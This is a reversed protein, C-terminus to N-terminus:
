QSTCDDDVIWREIRDIEIPCATPGRLSSSKASWDSYNDGSVCICQSCLRLPYLGIFILLYVSTSSVLHGWHRRLSEIQDFSIQCWSNLIELRLSGWDARRTRVTFSSPALRHLKDKHLGDIDKKIMTYLHKHGWEPILCSSLIGLNSDSAKEKDDSLITQM